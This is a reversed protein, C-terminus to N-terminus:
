KQMIKVVQRRSSPALGWVRRTHAGDRSGAPSNRRWVELEGVGPFFDRPRGYNKHWLYFGALM